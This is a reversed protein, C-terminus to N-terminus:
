SLYQFICMSDFCLWMIGNMWFSCFHHFCIKGRNSGISKLEGIANGKGRTLRLLSRRQQNTYGIILILILILGNAFHFWCIIQCLGCWSHVSTEMLGAIFSQQKRRCIWRITKASWKYWWSDINQLFSENLMNNKCSFRLSYSRSPQYQNEDRTHYRSFPIFDHKNTVPVRQHTLTSALIQFMLFYPRWCLCKALIPIVTIDDYSPDGNLWLQLM